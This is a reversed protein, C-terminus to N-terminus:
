GRERDAFRVISTSGASCTHSETAVSSWSAGGDTSRWVLEPGTACSSTAVWLHSSDLAYLDDVVGSMGRPTINRWHSSDNTVWVQAFTGSPDLTAALGLRASLLRVKTVAAAGGSTTM